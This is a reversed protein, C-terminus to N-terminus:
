LLAEEQILVHIHDRQHGPQRQRCVVSSHFHRVGSLRQEHDRQESRRSYQSTHSGLDAEEQTWEVRIQLLFIIKVKDRKVKQLNQVYFIQQFHSSNIKKLNNRNSPINICGLRSFREKWLHKEIEGTPLIKPKNGPEQSNYQQLSSSTVM